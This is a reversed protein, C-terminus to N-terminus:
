QSSIMSPAVPLRHYAVDYVLALTSFLLITPYMSIHCRLSYYSVIVYICYAALACLCGICVYIIM